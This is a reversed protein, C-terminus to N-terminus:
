ERADSCRAEGHCEENIRTTLSAIGCDVEVRHEIAKMAARSADIVAQPPTRNSELLSLELQDPAYAPDNDILRVVGRVNSSASGAFLFDDYVTVRQGSLGYATSKFHRATVDVIGPTTEIAQRVCAV